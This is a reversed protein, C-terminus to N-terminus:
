YTKSSIFFNVIAKSFESYTQVINESSDRKLLIQIWNGTLMEGTQLTKGLTINRYFVCWLIGEKYVSAALPITSQQNTSTKVLVAEYRVSSIKNDNKSDYMLTQFRKVTQPSENCVIGIYQNTIYTFFTDFASVTTQLNHFWPIANKFSSFSLGERKGDSYIYFEPIFSYFGDFSQKLIGYAITEPRSMQISNEDNIYQYKDSTNVLYVTTGVTINGYVSGSSSIVYLILNNEIVSLDDAVLSNIAIKIDSITNITFTGFVLLGGVVISVNVGTGTTFTTGINWWYQSKTLTNFSTILYQKSKPNYGCPLIYYDVNCSIPATFKLINPTSRCTYPITFIFGSLVGMNDNEWITINTYTADAPNIICIDNGEIFWTGGLIASIFVRLGELDYIHQDLAVQPTGLVTYAIWNSQVIEPIGTTDYCCTTNGPTANFFLLDGFENSSGTICINNGSATFTGKGATTILAALQTATTITGAPVVDIYVGNFSFRVIWNTNISPFGTVDWCCTQNLYENKNYNYIYKLKAEAYSKVMGERAIDVLQNGDFKVIAARKTDIFFMLGDAEVYSESDQLGFTGNFITPDSFFKNVTILQQGGDALSVLQKSMMAGVVMDEQFVYLKYGDSGFQTIGGNERNLDTKDFDDDRVTSLGNYFTNPLYADSKRIRAPYWLQRADKNVINVRGIDEGNSPVTGQAYISHHEFPTVGADTVATNVYPFLPPQGWFIPYTDFTKLVTTAVGLQNNSQDGTTPIFDGIEYYIDIQDEKSPTYLEVWAGSVLTLLSSSYDCLFNVDPAAPDTSLAKDILGYTAFNFYTGNGNRIFQVRDGETWTYTTTTNEFYNTNYTILNTLTFSVKKIIDTAPVGVTGDYKLFKVDTIGFQLYGMELSRDINLNQTRCPKVYKVWDPFITNNWHITITHTQFGPTTQIPKINIKRAQSQQVFTSRLAADYCIFDIRYTGNQKLQSFGGAYNPSIHQYLTTDWNTVTNPAVIQDLALHLRTTAGITQTTISSANFNGNNGAIPVTINTYTGIINGGTIGDTTGDGGVELYVIDGFDIDTIVTPVATLSLPNADVPHVLYTHETTILGTQYDLKQVFINFFTGDGFTWNLTGTITLTLPAYATYTVEVTPTDVASQPLNDYGELIDGDVIVNAEVYKEAFSKLPVLNFLRNTDAQDLVNYSQNNFFKYKFVNTAASYPYTVNAVIDTRLITNYSRWDGINSIRYALEVIRVLGSGADMSLEVFNRATNISYYFSSIASWTSHEGDDYYYRYRFQFQKNYVWNLLYSTDPNTLTNTLDIDLPPYKVRRMFEDPTRYFLLTSYTGALATEVNMKFSENFGETWYVLRNLLQTNVGVPSIDAIVVDISTILYRINFNFKSDQWILNDVNTNADYVRFQHLDTSNWVFYFFQNLRRDYKTGICVNQGAGLAGIFTASNANSLTPTLLGINQNAGTNGIGQQYDSIVNKLFTAQNTPVLEKALDLNIGNVPKIIQIGRESM